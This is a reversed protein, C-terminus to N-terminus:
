CGSPWSLCFSPVMVCLSFQRPGSWAWVRFVGRGGEPSAGVEETWTTTLLTVLFKSMIIESQDECSPVSLRNTKQKKKTKQPPDCGHCTSTGLSPPRIPAVAALRCRLWLWVPDSGCRHGVGCSVAVGIRLGSLSALSQVWMRMSKNGSLWM